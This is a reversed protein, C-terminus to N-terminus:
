RSLALFLAVLMIIIVIAIMIRLWPIRERIMGSKGRRYTTGSGGGTATATGGKGYSIGVGPAPKKKWSDIGTCQHVPPLRCDPCFTGRCHQCTFPLTCENGCYDCRAM